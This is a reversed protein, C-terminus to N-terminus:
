ARLKVSLQTELEKLMKAVAKDAEEATLTRDSARLCVAYSLSKKGELQSGTYVDFM